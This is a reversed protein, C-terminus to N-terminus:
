RTIINSQEPEDEEREAIIEPLRVIFRFAKIREQLKVVDEPCAMILQATEAEIIGEVEKKMANWDINQQLNIAMERTMEM